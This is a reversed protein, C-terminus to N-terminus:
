YNDLIQKRRAKKLEKNRQIKNIFPQAVLELLGLLNAGGSPTNAILQRDVAAIGAFDPRRKREGYIIVESLMRASPLMFVTDTMEEHRLVRTEYKPHHFVAKDFKDPVVVRGDWASKVVENNDCRISVDRVPLRTDASVVICRRQSAANQVICLFLATAIITNYTIKDM